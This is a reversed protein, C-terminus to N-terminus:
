VAHGYEASPIVTPAVSIAERDARVQRLTRELKIVNQVTAVCVGFRSALTVIGVGAARQDYIARRIQVSTKPPRGGKRPTPTKWTRGRCIEWATNYKVGYLAAVSAITHGSDVLIRIMQALLWTMKPATTTPSPTRITDPTSDDFM